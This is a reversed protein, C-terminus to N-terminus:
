ANSTLLGNEYLSLFMQFTPYLLLSVDDRARRREIFLLQHRQSGRVKMPSEVIVFLFALSGFPECLSESLCVFERKANKQPWSFAHFLLSFSSGGLAGFHLSKYEM